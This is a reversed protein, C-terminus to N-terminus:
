EESDVEEICIDDYNSSIYLEDMNHEKTCEWCLSLTDTKLSNFAKEIAEDKDEGEFEGLYITTAVQTSIKFRKM